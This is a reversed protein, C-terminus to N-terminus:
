QDDETAANIFGAGGLSSGLLRVFVLPGEGHVAANAGEATM